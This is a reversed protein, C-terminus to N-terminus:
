KPQQGPLPRPQRYAYIFIVLGLLVTLLSLIHGMTIPYKGPMVINFPDKYFECVFRAGYSLMAAVGAIIGPKIYPGKRYWWYYLAILIMLYSFSEYLQVPHRSIGKTYIDVIYNQKKNKYLRYNLPQEAPEYVHDSIKSSALYSKLQNELFGKLTPEDIGAKKITLSLTIPQYGNETEINQATLDKFVKTEQIISTDRQLRDVIHHAFIVGYSSHTPTGFLESNIFNGIRVFFGMLVGFALPTLLWLFSQGQRKVKRFRIRFLELSIEYRAYLYIALIGGLLAGHYSLGRYGVFKFSPYFTVPLIAELPHKLYYNFNYFLAEGLRAGVLCCLLIYLTLREVDEVPRGEKKYYYGILRTGILFAFIIMLSYWRVALFGIRFLETHPNWIIYNTLSM